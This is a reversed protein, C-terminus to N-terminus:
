IMLQPIVFRRRHIAFWSEVSLYKYVSMCLGCSGTNVMMVFMNEPTASFDLKEKFLFTTGDQRLKDKHKVCFDIIQDQELCLKVLPHKLSEFIDKFVGDKIMEYVAVEAQETSHGPNDLGYRVFNSDIGGTFVDKAKAITRTGDTPGIVIREDEFLRRLYTSVLSKAESKVGERLMAALHAKWLECDKGGLKNAIDLVIGLHEKPVGVLARVVPGLMDKEKKTSM